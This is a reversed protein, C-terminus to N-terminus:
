DRMFCASPLVGFSSLVTERGNPHRLVLTGPEGALMFSRLFPDYEDVIRRGQLWCRLATRAGASSVAVGGSATVPTDTKGDHVIKAEATTAALLGMMALLTIAKM